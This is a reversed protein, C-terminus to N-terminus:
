FQDCTNKDGKYQDSSDAKDADAAGIRGGLDKRIRNQQKEIEALHTMNACRVGTEQGLSCGCPKVPLEGM